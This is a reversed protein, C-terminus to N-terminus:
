FAPLGAEAYIQRFVAHGSELADGGGKERVTLGNERAFRIVAEASCNYHKGLTNASVGALWRRKFDALDFTIKVSQVGGGATLSLRRLIGATACQSRGIKKAIENCSLGQQQLAIVERQLSHPWTKTDPRLNM